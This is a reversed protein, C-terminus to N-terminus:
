LRSLSFCQSPPLCSSTSFRQLRKKPSDGGPKMLCGRSSFLRNTQKCFRNRDPHRSPPRENGFPRQSHLLTRHVRRKTAGFPRNWCCVSSRTNSDHVAITFHFLTTLIRLSVCDSTLICLRRRYRRQSTAESDGGNNGGM